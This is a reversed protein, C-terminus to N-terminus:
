SLSRSLADSRALSRALSLSLSLSSLLSRTSLPGEEGREGLDGNRAGEPILPLDTKIAISAGQARTVPIPAAHQLQLRQQTARRENIGTKVQEKLQHHSMVSVDGGGWGVGSSPPIHLESKEGPTQDNQGWGKNTVCVCVYICVCVCVCVDEKYICTYMYVHM